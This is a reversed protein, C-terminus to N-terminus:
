LASTLSFFIQNLAVAIRRVRDGALYSFSSFSAAAPAREKSFLYYEAFPESDAHPYQYHGSDKTFQNPQRSKIREGFLGENQVPFNRAIKGPQPPASSLSTM